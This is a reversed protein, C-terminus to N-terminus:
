MAFLAFGLINESWFILGSVSLRNNNTNLSYVQAFSAVLKIIREIGKTPELKNGVEDLEGGEVRDSFELRDDKAIGRRGENVGTEDMEGVEHATVEVLITPLVIGQVVQFEEVQIRNTVCELRHVPSGLLLGLRTEM